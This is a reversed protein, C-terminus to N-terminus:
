FSARLAFRFVREGGEVNNSSSSASTVTMFSSATSVSTNPNGFHPTNSVNFAEARFQLKWKETLRFNRFLAADVSVLGPGRLINRGTNGYGVRTVAAFATPDYFPVNRGIAGIKDVSPKIQDATQSQGPANLSTGSASVTFPTGTYSSLIGNVQWGGLLAKGAANDRAWRKGAGFPLESVWALRFTHTRDYGAPAYNRALQTPDPWMLTGGEGDTFNLVKSWTYSLRVLLGKSFRRELRAQLSNYNGGLFSKFMLTDATRGFMANLPRGAEGLGPSSANINLRVGQRITRTGVYGASAVFDGPLQREVIFNFSEIYGRRYLGKELSATSTKLPIDIIGKSTDPYQALPIGEEIPGYPLYSSAGAYDNNIAVPFPFLLSEATSLTYPNISIGYGTRMVAKQGIRYALGLRPALLRKSVSIGANQDVGGLGGIYVKNTEPDYRELGTHDRSM